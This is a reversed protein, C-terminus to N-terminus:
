RGDMVSVVRGCRRKVSKLVYVVGKTLFKHASGFVAEHLYFVPRVSPIASGYRQIQEGVEVLGVSDDGVGVPNRVVLVEM